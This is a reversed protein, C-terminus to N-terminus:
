ETTLRSLFISLIAYKGKKYIIILEPRRASILHDTLIDFYWPLKHTNNELVPAPNHVYWKNTHDFEFKKCMERHIVNGVWDHRAKYEKQALTSCESIIHNITEDRDGCLRCKSNQQTKDIGAKIHNNSIANNQAVILLFETERKLNGKGLSTWIKLLSITNILRKFHGYLQKKGMKTKNNNNSKHVEVCPRAFAPRGYMWCSHSSVPHQGSSRGTAIFSLSSHRSFTLSIRAVLM